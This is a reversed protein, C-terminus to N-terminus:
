PVPIACPTLAAAAIESETHRLGEARWDNRRTAIRWSSLGASQARCLSLATDALKQLIGEPSTAMSQMLTVLARNEAEFNPPRSLRRSLEATSLMSQPESVRAMEGMAKDEQEVAEVHSM